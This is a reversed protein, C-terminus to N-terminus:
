RVITRFRVFGTEGPQLTESLRWTLVVSDDDGEGTSFTAPVTADASDAVYSLRQPLADVLV